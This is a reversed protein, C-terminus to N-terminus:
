HMRFHAWSNSTAEVGADKSALPNVEIATQSIVHTEAGQREEEEGM